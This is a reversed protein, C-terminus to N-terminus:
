PSKDDVPQPTAGLRAPEGRHKHPTRRRSGKKTRHAEVIVVRVALVPSRRISAALAEIARAAIVAAARVAFRATLDRLLADIRLRLSRERLHFIAPHRLLLADSEYDSPRLHLEKERMRTERTAKRRPNRSVRRWFAAFPESSQADDGGVSSHSGPIPVQRRRALSWTDVLACRQRVLHGNGPPASWAM